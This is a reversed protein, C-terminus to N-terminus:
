SWCLFYQNWVNVEVSRSPAASGPFVIFGPPQSWDQLVQSATICLSSQPQELAWFEATVDQWAGQTQGWYDCQLQWRLHFFHPPQVFAWSHEHLGVRYCLWV